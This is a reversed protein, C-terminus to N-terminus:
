VNLFRKLDRGIPLGVLLVRDGKIFAPIGKIGYKKIYERGRSSNIDIEEYEVGHEDLIAKALKCPLCDDSSLVKLM